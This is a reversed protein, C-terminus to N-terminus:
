MQDNRKQEQLMNLGQTDYKVIFSMLIGYVSHKKHLYFLYLISEDAGGSKFHQKDELLRFRDHLLYCVSHMEYNATFRLTTRM